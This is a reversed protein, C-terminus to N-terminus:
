VTLEERAPVEISVRHKGRRRACHRASSLHEIFTQELSRSISGEQSHCMAARGASAKLITDAPTPMTPRGPNGWGRRSGTYIVRTSAVQCLSDIERGECYVMLTM